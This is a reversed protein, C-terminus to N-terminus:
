KKYCGTRKQKRMTPPELVQEIQLDPDYEEAFPTFALWQSWVNYSSLFEVQAINLSQATMIKHQLQLDQAAPAIDQSPM